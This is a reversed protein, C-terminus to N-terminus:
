LAAGTSACSRRPAATGSSRGAFRRSQVAAGLGRGGGAKLVRFIEALARDDDRMHELVEAASAISAEDAFPLAYSDGRVALWPGADAAAPLGGGVEMEAISRATAVVELAGIDLAVVGV